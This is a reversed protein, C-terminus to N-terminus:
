VEMCESGLWVKRFSLYLGPVWRELSYFIDSFQIRFEKIIRIAEKANGFTLLVKYGGLKALKVGELGYSNCLSFISPIAGIWKVKRLLSNSLWEANAAM